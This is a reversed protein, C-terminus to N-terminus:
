RLFGSKFGGFSGKPNAGRKGEQSNLTKPTTSPNADELKASKSEDSLKRGVTSHSFKEDSSSMNGFMNMFMSELQNGGLGQSGMLKLMESMDGDKSINASQPGDGSQIFEIMKTPKEKKSEVSKLVDEDELSYTFSGTIAPINFIAHDSFKLALYDIGLLVFQRKIDTSQSHGGIQVEDPISNGLEQYIIPCYTVDVKNGTEEAIKSLAEMPSKVEQDIFSDSSATLSRVEQGCFKLKGSLEDSGGKETVFYDFHCSYNCSERINHMAKLFGIQLPYHGEESKTINSGTM